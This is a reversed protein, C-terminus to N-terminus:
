AFAYYAGGTGGTAIVVRRPPAPDVFQYAVFFGGVTLLVAPGYIRVHHWATHAASGSAV